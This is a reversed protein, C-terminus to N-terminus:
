APFVLRRRLWYTGQFSVATAILKAPAAHLGLATALSVIGVTLGLGVLASLVFLAKRGTRELGRPAMGGAFVARSSLLWHIVVGSGYGAAAAPSPAAGADLLGFYVALDVALAVVSAGLYRSWVSGAFRALLAQAM